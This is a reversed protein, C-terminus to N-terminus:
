PSGDRTRDQPPRTHPRSAFGQALAQKPMIALLVPHDTVNVRVTRGAVTRM